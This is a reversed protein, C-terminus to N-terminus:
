GRSDEEERRTVADNLLEQLAMSRTITISSNTAEIRRKIFDDIRELLAVPLRVSVLRTPVAPKKQKGM